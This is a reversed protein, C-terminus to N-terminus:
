ASLLALAVTCDPRRRSDRALALLGLSVLSTCVSPMLGGVPSAAEVAAGNRQHAKERTFHSAFKRSHRFCLWFCLADARAVSTVVTAHAPASSRLPAFICTQKSL